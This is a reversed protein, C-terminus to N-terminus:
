RVVDWMGHWGTENWMGDYLHAAHAQEDLGRRLRGRRGLEDGGEDVGGRLVAGSRQVGGRALGV